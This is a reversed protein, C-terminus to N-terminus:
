ALADSHDNVIHSMLANEFKRETKRNRKVNQTETKKKQYQYIATGNVNNIVGHLQNRNTAYM